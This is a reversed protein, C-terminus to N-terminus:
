RHGNVSRIYNVADVIGDANNPGCVFKAIQKLSENGDSMAIGHGSATVMPMDNLQDGVACVEHGQIDHRLHIHSLGTWKDVHKQSIECYHYGTQLHPVIIVNYNDPYTQHVAAEVRKLDHEPGFCGCVLFSDDESTLDAQDCWPRNNDFHSTTAENWHQNADILFDAGGIAHADRQAFLTMEADRVLQAIGSVDFQEIHLTEQDPSKVLAGGNCVAHVEFGLNEIVFRTTRYRRGTAIVVQVGEEHHLQHLAARTAPLVQHNDIALTGDLDLAIQKILM